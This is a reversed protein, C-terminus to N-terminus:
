PISLAKEAAPEKEAKEAEQTTEELVAKEAAFAPLILSFSLILVLLIAAAKKM